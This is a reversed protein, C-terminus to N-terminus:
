VVSKRDVNFSNAEPNQNCFSEGIEQATQAPNKGSLKTLGFCVLTFDGEVDKRTPQIVLPTLGTNGYLSTITKSLVQSLWQEPKIM